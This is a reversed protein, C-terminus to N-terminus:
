LKFTKFGFFRPLKSVLTGIERSKKNISCINQEIKIIFFYRIMVENVIIRIYSLM